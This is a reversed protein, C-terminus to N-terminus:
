AAASNARTRGRDPLLHCIEPPLIEDVALSFRDENTVPGRSAQPRYAAAPTVQDLDAKAARFINSVPQEPTRVRRQLVAVQHRLILIGADKARDSRALLALWGFVRLVALYALRLSVLVSLAPARGHERLWIGLESVGRVVAFALDASTVGNGAGV